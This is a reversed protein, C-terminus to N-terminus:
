QDAQTVRAMNSAGSQFVTSVSENGTQTVIQMNDNGYQDSIIKLDSGDQSFIGTNNNGMQLAGFAGSGSISNNNGTQSIRFTNNDGMQTLLINNENGNQTANSGAEGSIGVVSNGDGIQVADFNNNDGSTIIRANNNDGSQNISSFNNTSTLGVIQQFADNGDSTQQIVAENDVGEIRQAADNGIGSQTVYGKSAIAQFAIQDSENDSVAQNLSLFSGSSATGEIRQLGINQSGYQKAYTENNQNFAGDSGIYAELSNKGDQVVTATHGHGFQEVKSNSESLSFNEINNQTVTVVNLQELSSADSKQLVTSTHTGTQNVDSKNFNGSQTVVSSNNQALVHLGGLLTAVTLTLKKM